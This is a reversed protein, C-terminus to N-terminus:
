SFRRLPMGFSSKLLRDLASVPLGMVNYYDGAIGQVYVSFLGQIAYGGAKDYPESTSIYAEIEEDTMTSVNVRTTECVGASIGDSIVCIGTHVLHTRGSIMSIMQRAEETSGPKGLFRGDVDVVTDAGLVVINEEGAAKLERYVASAKRAALITVADAPKTGAPISEDAASVRIDFAAGATTLIERRRPSGSALILKKGNM